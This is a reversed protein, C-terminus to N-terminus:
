RRSLEQYVENYYLASEVPTNAPIMNTVGIFYGPCNQGLTMCRQVEQRIEDRSGMLLIRTDVNGIIIHTRGYHEVIYKLDTLPEFFFGSVGTAAIDNVFETYNGDAVFIVKKGSDLLPTYLQRYNSVM